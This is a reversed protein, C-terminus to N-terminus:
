RDKSPFYPPQGLVTKKSCYEKKMRELQKEFTFPGYTKYLYRIKDKYMQEKSGQTIVCAYSYCADEYQKLDEYKQADELNLRIGEPNAFLKDAIKKLINM